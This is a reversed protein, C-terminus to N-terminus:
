KKPINGLLEQRLDSLAELLAKRFFAREDSARFHNAYEIVKREVVSEIFEKEWENNPKLTM